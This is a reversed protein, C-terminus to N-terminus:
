SSMTTLLLALCSCTVQNCCLFSLCQWFKGDISKQQLCKKEKLHVGSQSLNAFMAGSLLVNCTEVSFWWLEEVLVVGSASKYFLVRPSFSFALQNLAYLYVLLYAFLLWYQRLIIVSFWFLFLSLLYLQWFITNDTESASVEFHTPHIM